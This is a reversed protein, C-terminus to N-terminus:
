PTILLDGFGRQYCGLREAQYYLRFTDSPLSALDFALTNLGAPLDNIDFTRVVEFQDNVLRMRWITGTQNRLHLFCRGNYLSNSMPNPMVPYVMLSDIYCNSASTTTFLNKEQDAWAYSDKWTWDTSDNDSSLTQGLEDVSYIGTFYIKENSPEPEQPEHCCAQLIFVTLAVLLLAVKSNKM